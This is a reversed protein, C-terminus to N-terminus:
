SLHSRYKIRPLNYEIEYITKDLIDNYVATIKLDLVDSDNYYVIRSAIDTTPVNWLTFLDNLDKCFFGSHLLEKNFNNVQAKVFETSSRFRIGSTKDYFLQEGNGTNIYLDSDKESKIDDVHIAEQVKTAAKPGLIDKTKTKYEELRNIARDALALAAVERKNYQIGGAAILGIGCAM